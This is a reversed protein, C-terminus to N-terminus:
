KGNALKTLKAIAQDYEAKSEPNKEEKLKALLQKALLKRENPFKQSVM